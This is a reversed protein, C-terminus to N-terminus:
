RAAEAAEDLQRQTVWTMTLGCYTPWGTRLKPGVQGLPRERKCATCRLIGGFGQLEEGIASHIGGARKAFGIVTDDM